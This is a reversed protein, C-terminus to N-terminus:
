RASGTLTALALLDMLGHAAVAPWIRRTRLYYGGFVVAAPTVSIVGLPGQYLHVCVRALVSASLALLWDERRLSAVIVGLYLFEEAIPNIVSILLVVPFSVHGDISVTRAAEAFRPAVGVALLFALYYTLLAAGFLMGGRLLDRTRFPETVSAISWGQSALRRAWFLGLFLELAVLGLLRADSMTAGLRGGQSLRLFSPIAFVGVTSALLAWFQVAGIPPPNAHDTVGQAHM